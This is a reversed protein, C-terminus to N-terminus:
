DELLETHMYAFLEAKFDYEEFVVMTNGKTWEEYHDAQCWPTFGKSILYATIKERSKM